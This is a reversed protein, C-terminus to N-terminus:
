YILQGTINSIFYVSEFSLSKNRNLSLETRVEFHYVKQVRFDIYADLM